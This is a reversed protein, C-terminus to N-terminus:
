GSQTRRRASSRGFPPRNIVSGLMILRRLANWLLAGSGGDATSRALVAPGALVLALAVV